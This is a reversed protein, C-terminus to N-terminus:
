VGAGLRGATNGFKLSCMLAGAAWGRHHEPFNKGLIRMPMAVAEGIGLIFAVAL